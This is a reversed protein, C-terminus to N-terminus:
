STILQALVSQEEVQMLATVFGDILGRNPIRRFLYDLLYGAQERPNKLEMIEMLFPFSMFGTVHLETAVDVARLSRMFTSYNKQLRSRFVDQDMM